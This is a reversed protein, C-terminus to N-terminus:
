KSAQSNNLYKLNNVNIVTNKNNISINRYINLNNKNQVFYTVGLSNYNNSNPNLKM